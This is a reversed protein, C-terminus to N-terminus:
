IITLTNQDSKNTKSTVNIGGGTRSMFVFFQNSIQLQSRVAGKLQRPQFSSRRPSLAAYFRIM